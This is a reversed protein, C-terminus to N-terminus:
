PPTAAPLPPATYFRTRERGPRRRRSRDLHPLPELLPFPLQGTPPGARCLEGHTVAAGDWREWREPGTAGGHAAPDRPPPDRHGDTCATGERDGDRPQRTETAVDRPATRDPGEGDTVGPPRLTGTGRM